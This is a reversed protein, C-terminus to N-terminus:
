RGTSTRPRLRHRRRALLLLAPLLSIWTRGGGGAHLGVGCSTSCGEDQCMEDCGDGPERNGDDCEEGSAQDILQDGCTELCVSPGGLAPLDLCRYLFEEQCHENCGDGPTLNGDDCEEGPGHAGDGCVLQCGFTGGLDEDVSFGLECACQFSGELNFCLTHPSHLSCSAVGVETVCEDIDRCGGGINEYGDDCDCTPTGSDGIACAGHTCDLGAEECLFDDVLCDPGTRHIPTFRYVAGAGYMVAYLSHDRGMRFAVPTTSPYTAFDIATSAVLGTHTANVRLTRIFGLESDAFLYRPGGFIDGWGCGEVILGGIVAAGTGHAYDYAPPSCGVSPSMDVCNMGGVDGWVTTGEEFPYGGHEGAAVISVEERTVEGVDGVWVLDTSPDAFIRFPNRFGWAFIREDPAGTGWAGTPSPCSTVATEGVLPNSKPITGDLNVRLIKGNGKNLCSATRNTPPSHNAGTDGVSVYLMDGAISLGGGDHNAPGELGPGLMRSAAIITEIDTFGDSDTLVARYVRHKDADTSGNSVFFFFGNGPRPDAVVGLLGKESETDVTGGFPNSVTVVSGDTHRIVIQGTKRTVLARGDEAFAIDTAESVGTLYATDATVLDDYPDVLAARAPSVLALIFAAVPGLASTRMSM